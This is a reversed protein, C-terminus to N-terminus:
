HVEDFFDQHNDRIKRHTWRSRLSLPKALRLLTCWTCRWPPATITRSLRVVRGNISALPRGNASNRRKRPNRTPCSPSQGTATLGAVCSAVGPTPPRTQAILHAIRNSMKGRSSGGRPSSRIRFAGARSAHHTITPSDCIQWRLARNRVAEYRRPSPTTDVKTSGSACIQAGSSYMRLHPILAQWPAAERMLVAPCHHCTMNPDGIVPSQWSIDIGCSPGL